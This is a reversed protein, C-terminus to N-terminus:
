SIDQMDSMEEDAAKYSSSKTAINLNFMCVRMKTSGTSEIEMWGKSTVFGGMGESTM